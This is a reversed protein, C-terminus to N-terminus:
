PKRKIAAGDLAAASNKPRAPTTVNGSRVVTPLLAIVPAPPATKKPVSPISKPQLDVQAAPVRGNGHLPGAPRVPTKADGAAGAPGLTLAGLAVIIFISRATKM